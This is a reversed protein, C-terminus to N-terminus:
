LMPITPNASGVMKAVGRFHNSQFRPSLVASIGGGDELSPSNQQMLGKKHIKLVELKQTQAAILEDLSTFCTESSRNNELM